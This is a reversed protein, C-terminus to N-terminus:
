AIYIYNITKRTQRIANLILIYNTELNNDHYIECHIMYVVSDDFIRDLAGKLSEDESDSTWYILAVM